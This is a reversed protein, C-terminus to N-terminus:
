PIFPTAKVRYFRRSGQAQPDQLIQFLDNGPQTGQIPVWSTSPSLNTAYELSFMNNTLSGYQVTSVGNTTSLLSSIIGAQFYIPLWDSETHIPGGNSGNSSTDVIKFAVTYVGPTTATFRRGHIHGYPDSGAPAGANESIPFLNTSAVGKLLAITPTKAGSEWFGFSGGAPADLLAMRAQVYSGLAPADAVPGAHGATAALVTLTINGQYYGAYTSGNTYILTKVYLSNTGFEGANQFFLPAGQQTGHSGGELHGHAQAKVSAPLFTLLEFCIASILISNSKM